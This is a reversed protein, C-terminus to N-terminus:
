EAPRNKDTLNRYFVRDHKEKNAAAAGHVLERVVRPALCCGLNHLLRRLDDCKIYGCGARDFFRFAFLLDQDIDGTQHDKMEVDEAQAPTEVTTSPIESEKMAIDSTEDVDGVHVVDGPSDQSHVEMAEVAPEAQPSEENAPKPKKVQPEPVESAETAAPRKKDKQVESNTRETLANLILSGYDRMLMENFSEAMLSLEFTAEDKDSEDYDLLGDLSITMTKVKGNKASRCKLLLSPESPMEDMQFM